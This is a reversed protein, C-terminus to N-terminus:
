GLCLWAGLHRTKLGSGWTVLSSLDHLVPTSLPEIAAGDEEHGEQFERTGLVLCVFGQLGSSSQMRALPISFCTACWPLACNCPVALPPLPVPNAFTGLSPQLLRASSPLPPCGPWFPAQPLDCLFSPQASPMPTLFDCPSRLSPCPRSLHSAALGPIPQAPSDKYSSSLVPPPLPPLPLFPPARSAEPVSRMLFRM